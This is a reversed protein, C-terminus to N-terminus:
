KEKRNRIMRAKILISEINRYSRRGLFNKRYLFTLAPEKKLPVNSAAIVRTMLEDYDNIMMSKKVIVGVVTNKNFGTHLLRYKESHFATYNELLYENWPYSADPFIGFNNIETIPVYNGTCFRDLVADTEKVQFEVYDKRVFKNESVRSATKYLADFYIVKSGISESFQELEELTFSERSKGFDTFVDSMSLKEYPFSIINGNFTFRDALKYKLADRWGNKSFASNKDYIYPYKEKIEDYLENGSMFGNKKIEDEIMKEVDDLEEDTLDFNDAHFYEGKRNKVFELRSGLIASIKNEPIHPLMKQLEETQLPLVNEKLCKRVEEVPDVETVFVKSLFDKTIYYKNGSVITIYERLMDADYIRYDLFKDYFTSFLAEFYVLTAGNEFRNDIYAFLEEKVEDSLMAEPTYLKGEYEIGCRRIVESISSDDSTLAHGNMEEFFRKFKKMDIVSGLRFGNPFRSTLVKKYPEVAKGYNGPASVNGFSKQRYDSTGPRRNYSASLRKNYSTGPRQSYSKGPHRNYSTSLRRNSSKRPGVNLCEELERIAELFRDHKERNYAIFNADNFLEIVTNEAEKGDVGLLKTHAFNNNEAYSEASRIYSIYRRSKGEPLHKECVMWKYFNKEDERMYWYRGTHASPDENVSDPNERVYRIQLNVYDVLCLNLLWRLYRVFETASFNTEIFYKDSIQAPKILLYANPRSALWFRESGPKKKMCYRAFVNPYDEVLLRCVDKYLAAWSDEQFEDDFYKFSVPKTYAMDEDTEFNVIHENDRNRNKQVQLELQAFDVPSNKDYSFNQVYSIQRKDPQSKYTEDISTEGTHSGSGQADNKPMVNPQLVTTSARSIQTYIGSSGNIQANESQADNYQAESHPTVSGQPQRNQMENSNKFESDFTGSSHAKNEFVENNEPENGSSVNIHTYHNQPEISQPKSRLMGNGQSESNIEGSHADRNQAESGSTEDIQTDRSLDKSGSTESSQAESSSEENIHVEDSHADKNQSVSSITTEKVDDSNKLSKGNDDSSVAPVAIAPKYEALFRSLYNLVSDVRGMQRKHASRFRYDENLRSRLARVDLEPKEFLSKQIFGKSKEFETIEVFAMYLESLQAPSVRRSLWDIFQDDSINSVRNTESMKEAEALLRKYEDRNNHYLNVVNTFLRSSPKFIMHGAYASEMSAMQFMIGNVNRYVDDIDLGKNIAMQRLKASCEDIADSRSCVGDVTKLYYSLLLVAEHETFPIKKEKKLFV